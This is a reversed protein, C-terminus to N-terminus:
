SLVERIPGGGEEVLRMARGSFVSPASVIFIPMAYVLRQLTCARDLFNEHKRSLLEIM